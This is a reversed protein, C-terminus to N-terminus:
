KQAWFFLRPFRFIVEGNKQLLYEQKIKRMLEAEFDPIREEPLVDLYPRLGTGRYWDLLAEHGAMRHFYITSWMSFDRSIDSLLDFYESETLIYFDRVEPFYDKWEPSLATERILRHVPQEFQLPIQVALFGGDRLLGMLERLLKPHDPVWQLCANSFVVDYGCGLTPLECSVDCCRFVFDPHATAATKLMEMSNDIGLVTAEPFRRHLVETSNGPGCGIDVVREASLEPIRAALDVSPQTREQKYKLYQVSDWSSM